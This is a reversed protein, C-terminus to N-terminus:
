FLAATEQNQVSNHNQFFFDFLITQFIKCLLIKISNINLIFNFLERFM